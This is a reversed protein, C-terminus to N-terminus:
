TDNQITGPSANRCTLGRSREAVVLYMAYSIAVPANITMSTTIERLPIGDFPTEM